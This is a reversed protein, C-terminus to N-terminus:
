RAHDRARSLRGSLRNGDAFVPRRDAGPAYGYDNGVESPVGTVVVGLKVVPAGALVRRFEELVVPRVKSPRTVALLADVHASLALADGVKLIPAADLLLIDARAALERTLRLVEESSVFEGADQPITGAPLVELTGAHRAGGSGNADGNIPAELEFTDLGNLPFPTLAEELAVHGRAVDTVGPRRDIGFLGAVSPRRLDLDALVVRKGRRALAVALNGLVTSKGEARNASTVMITRAGVDVNAFELNTALIRVAEAEGSRPATLIPLRALSRRQGHVEPIRGLLPLGLRAEVEDAGRVRTNLADRVLVLGVGLLLGLFGGLVANRATKPQTQTAEDAARVLLANSGRLAEATRIQARRQELTRYLSSRTTVGSATLDALQDELLKRAAVLGRTDIDRRYEAYARAYSTALRAALEQGPAIVSFNLIDANGASTVSSNALLEPRRPEGAIRLARRAVAPLRALRAQTSLIREPDGGAIGTLDPSLHESSLFVDASAQYLAEQRMSIGIAAAAVAVVTLAVLWAERRLVRLQHGLRTQEDVRLPTAV